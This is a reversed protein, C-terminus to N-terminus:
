QQIYGRRIGREKDPCDEIIANLIINCEELAIEFNNNTHKPDLVHMLRWFHSPGCCMYSNCVPVDEIKKKNLPCRKCLEYINKNKKNYYVMCYTCRSIVHLNDYGSVTTFKEKNEIKTKINEWKHKSELWESYSIGSYIGILGLFKDFYPKIKM